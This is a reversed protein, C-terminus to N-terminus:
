KFTTRREYINTKFRLFTKNNYGHIDGIVIFNGFLSLCNPEKILLQRVNLNIYKIAKYTLMKGEYADLFLKDM